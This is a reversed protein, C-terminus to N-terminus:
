VFYIIFNETQSKALEILLWHAPSYYKQPFFFFGEVSLIQWLVETTDFLLMKM